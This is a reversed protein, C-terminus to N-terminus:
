YSDVFILVQDVPTPYGLRWMSARSPPEMLRAHESSPMVHMLLVILVSRRLSDVTRTSSVFINKSLMKDQKM